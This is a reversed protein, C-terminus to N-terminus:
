PICVIECVLEGGVSCVCVCVTQIGVLGSCIATAFQGAYCVCVWVRGLTGGLWGFM